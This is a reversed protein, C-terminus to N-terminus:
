DTGSGAPNNAETASALSLDCKPCKILVFPPGSVEVPGCHPCVVLLRLQDTIQDIMEGANEKMFVALDVSLTVTGTFIVGAQTHIDVQYTPPSSNLTTTHHGKYGGSAAKFARSAAEDGLLDIDVTSARWDWRASFTPLKPDSPELRFLELHASDTALSTQQVVLQYDAHCEEPTVNIDSAKHPRIKTTKFKDREM